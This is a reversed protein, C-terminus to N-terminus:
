CGTGRPSGSGLRGLGRTRAATGVAMWVPRGATPSRNWPGIAWSGSTATATGTSRPLATVCTSSEIKSPRWNWFCTSASVSGDAQDSLRRSLLPATM